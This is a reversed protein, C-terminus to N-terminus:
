QQKQAAPQPPNPLPQRKLIEKTDKPMFGVSLLLYICFLVRKNKFKKLKNIIYKKSKSGITIIKKSKRHLDNNIITLKYQYNIANKNRFRKIVKMKIFLM